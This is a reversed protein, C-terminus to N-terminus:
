QTLLPAEKETEEKALEDQDTSYTPCSTPILGAYTFDKLSALGTFINAGIIALYNDGLYLEQLNGLDSFAGTEISSIGNSTLRLSQLRHCGIFMIKTSYGFACFLVFLGSSAMGLLSLYLDPITGFFVILPGISGLGCLLALFYGIIESNWCLPYSVVYLLALANSSGTISLDCCLVLCILALERNEKESNEKILLKIKRFIDRGTTDSANPPIDKIYTATYVIVATCVSAAIIFSTNFNYDSIAYGTILQAAGKSLQSLAGIVVLRKTLHYADFILSLYATAIAQAGAVGGGLGQVFQAVVMWWYSTQLSVSILWICCSVLLFILNIVLGWKYGIHLSFQTIIPVTFFSTLSSSVVFGLVIFNVRMQIEYEESSSENACTEPELTDSDLREIYNVYQVKVTSIVSYIFSYLIICVEASIFPPLVGEKKPESRIIANNTSSDGSYDEESNKDAIFFSKRSTTKTDAPISGYTSM